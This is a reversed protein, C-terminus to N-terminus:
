ASTDAAPASAKHNGRAGLREHEAIRADITAPLGCLMGNLWFLGLAERLGYVKRYEDEDDFVYGAIKKAGKLLGLGRRRRGRLPM